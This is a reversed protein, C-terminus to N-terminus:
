VHHVLQQGHPAPVKRTLACLLQVLWSESALLRRMRSVRPGPHHWGTDQEPTESGESPLPPPPSAHLAAPLCETLINELSLLGADVLGGPSLNLM